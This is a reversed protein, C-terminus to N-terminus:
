GTARSVMVQVERPVAVDKGADVDASGARGLAERGVLVRQLLRGVAGLGDLPEGALRPAVAVDVIIPM